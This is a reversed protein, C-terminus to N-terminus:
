YSAAGSANLAAALSFIMRGRALLGRRSPAILLRMMGGGGQVESFGVKVEEHNSRVRRMAICTSSQVKRRRSVNVM